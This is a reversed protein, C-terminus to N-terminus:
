EEAEEYDDDYFDGDDFDHHDEDEFVEEDHEREPSNRLTIKSMRIHPEDAKLRISNLIEDTLGISFTPSVDDNHSNTHTRKNRKNFCSRCTVGEMTRFIDSTDPLISGCSNCVIEGNAILDKFCNSCIALHKGQQKITFTNGFSHCKSCFHSDAYNSLEKNESVLESFTHGEEVWKTKLVQLGADDDYKLISHNHNGYRLCIRGDKGHIFYTNDQYLYDYINYSNYFLDLTYKSIFNEKINEIKDFVGIQQFFTNDILTKSPYFIQSYIKTVGDVNGIIGWSRKFMTFSKVNMYEKPSMDTIYLICRGKESMVFPLCSWLGSSSEPNLCSTWGKEYSSLFYDDPNKSIVFFLDSNSKIKFSGIKEFIKTTLETIMDKGLNIHKCYLYRKFNERESPKYYKRFCDIFDKLMKNRDAIAEFMGFDIEYEPNIGHHPAEQFYIDNYFSNILKFLKVDQKDVNKRNDYYDEYTIKYKDCFSTLSKLVVFGEDIYELMEKPIEIFKRLGAENSLFYFEDPLESLNKETLRVFESYGENGLSFYKRILHKLNDNLLMQM